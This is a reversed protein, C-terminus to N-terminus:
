RVFAVQTGATGAVVATTDDLSGIAARGGTSEVFRRAATIKPGM